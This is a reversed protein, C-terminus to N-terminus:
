EEQEALSQLGDASHIRITKHGTLEVLGEQAMQNLKRSITECRLNISASIVNRSLSQSATEMDRSQFLLNGALRAKANNLFLIEQLWSCNPCACASM